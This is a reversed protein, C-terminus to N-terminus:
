GIILMHRRNDITYTGLRHLFDQGLLTDKSVTATANRLVYGGINLPPLNVVPERSHLRWRRLYLLSRRVLYRRFM